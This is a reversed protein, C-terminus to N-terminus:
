SARFHSNPFWQPHCNPTRYIAIHHRPTRPTCHYYKRYPKLLTQKWGSSVLVPFVISSCNIISNIRHSPTVASSSKVLDDYDTTQMQNRHNMFFFFLPFISILPGQVRLLLIRAGAERCIRSPLHLRSSTTAVWRLTRPSLLPLSSPTSTENGSPTQALAQVGSGFPLTTPSSNSPFPLLPPSLPHPNASRPHVCTDQEQILFLLVAM